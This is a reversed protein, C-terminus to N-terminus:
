AAVPPLCHRVKVKMRSWVSVEFMGRNDPRPALLELKAKPINL